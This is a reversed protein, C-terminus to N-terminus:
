KGIKYIASKSCVYINPDNHIQSFKIKDGEFAYSKYSGREIDFVLFEEEGEVIFKNNNDSFAFKNFSKKLNESKYKVKNDTKYNIFSIFVKEEKEKLLGIYDKGIKYDKLDKINKVVLKEEGSQNLYMDNSNNKNTKTYVIQKNMIIPQVSEKPVKVNEAIIKDKTDDSYFDRVKINVIKKDESKNLNEYFVFKDGYEIFYPEEDYEKKYVNLLKAENLKNTDISDVKTLANIAQYPKMTKIKKDYEKSYIVKRVVPNFTDIGRFDDSRIKKTYFEVRTFDKTESWYLNDDKGLYMSSVLSINGDSKHFIEKEKTKKDVRIIKSGDGFTTYFVFQKNQCSLDKQSGLNFESELLGAEENLVIADKYIFHGFLNLKKFVYFSSLLLIFISAVLAYKFKLIKRQKKKSKLFLEVKKNHEKSFEHEKNEFDEISLDDNLYLLAKIENDTIKKKM